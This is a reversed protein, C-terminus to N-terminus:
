PRRSLSALVANQELMMRGIEGSRNRLTTEVIESLTPTDADLLMRLAHIHEQIDAKTSRRPNFGRALRRAATEALKQREAILERKTKRM